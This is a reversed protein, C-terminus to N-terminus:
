FVADTCKRPCGGCCKQQGPCDLDSLCRVDCTGRKNLRKEGPCSGRKEDESVVVFIGIANCIISDLISIM